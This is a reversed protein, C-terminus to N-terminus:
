QSLLGPLATKTSAPTAAPAAIPAIPAAALAIPAALPATPAAAILPIDPENNEKIKNEAKDPNIYGWIKTFSAEQRIFQFWLPWDKQTLM